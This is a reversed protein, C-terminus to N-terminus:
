ICMSDLGVGGFQSGKGVSQKKKFKVSEQFNQCWGRKGISTKHTMSISWVLGIDCESVGVCWSALRSASCVM